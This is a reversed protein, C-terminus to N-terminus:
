SFSRVEVWLKRNSVTVTGSSAKFQVSITYTGPAAFIECSGGAQQAAATIQYTGGILQGTTVDGTYGAAGNPPNSFLGQTGTALSVNVNLNGTGGLGTEQVDPSANGNSRKLQNTGLFIAAKAAGAVSEQWTAQYGVIIKGNAPLVIGPVQDPTPMMGYAANTRSEVAAINSVGSRRPRLDLINAAPISVEGVTHLVAALILSNAPIVGPAGALYGGSGPTINAGATESGQLWEFRGFSSGGIGLEQVDYIRLIIYDIRPNVSPALVTNFPNAAADNTEFYLGNYFAGEPAVTQQIFASGAAIQVQVGSAPSVAMDPNHVIGAQAFALMQMRLTSFPYTLDTAFAPPSLAM